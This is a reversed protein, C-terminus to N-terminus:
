VSHAGEHVVLEGVVAGVLLIGGTIMLAYGRSPLDIATFAFAAGVGFVLVALGAAAPWPRSVYGSEQLMGAVSGCFLLLGGVAVPASDFLIGIESLPVGLAVFVPWPSARRYQDSVGPTEDM